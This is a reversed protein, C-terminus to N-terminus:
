PPSNKEVTDVTPIRRITYQGTFEVPVTRLVEDSWCGAFSSDPQSVECTRLRAARVVAPVAILTAPKVRSLAGYVFIV